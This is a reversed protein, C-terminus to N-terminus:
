LWIKSCHMESIFLVMIIVEPVGCGHWGYHSTQEQFALLTGGSGRLVTGVGSTMSGTYGVLAGLSYIQVHVLVAMLSLPVTPLVIHRCGKVM